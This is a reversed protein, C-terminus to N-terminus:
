DQWHIIVRYLADSLVIMHIGDSEVFFKVEENPKLNHCSATYGMFLPFADTSILVTAVAARTSFCWAM